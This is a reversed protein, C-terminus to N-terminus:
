HNEVADSQPKQKARAAAATAKEASIRAVQAEIADIRLGQYKVKALVDDFTVNAM